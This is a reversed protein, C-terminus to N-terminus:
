GAVEEPVAVHAQNRFWAQTRQIAERLPVQCRLGLEERARATCPVYRHPPTGTAKGQV